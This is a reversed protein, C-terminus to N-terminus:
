FVELNIYKRPNARIDAILAQLEENSRVLEAYLTTDQLLRGITGEGSAASSAMRSLAGLTTDASQVTASVDASLAIWAQTLSDIQQSAHRVNDVIETLEGEGVAGEVQAAVRQVSEAAATMTVATANLNEAVGELSSEQRAVLTTLQGSLQQINEIADRLSLATEETFAIEIRDSLTALNEAIRDAVATLRSVDPLSYGPLVGPELPEAYAYEPYRSRPFIEAQWDGFMSEPALLMVADAPLPVDRDVRATVIVGQGTRDLAIEEVRGIPVGRLKVANGEMLQGVERFRARLDQDERGFGGGKLWLTGFFILVIGLVIVTGVVVETRRM